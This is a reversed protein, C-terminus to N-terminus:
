DWELAGNDFDGFDDLSSETERPVDWEGRPDPEPQEVPAEGFLHFAKRRAYIATDTLDDRQGKHKRLKGTEEDISWQQNKLQEALKSDKLVKIRGDLCDGNFLEVSDMYNKKDAAEIPIGYVTALERLIADGNGDRDAVFGVPWGTIGLPSEKDPDCPRGALMATVYREGGLLTAISRAYMGRQEFEWVQYLTKTPDTPSFAWITIATPDSSGLDKGYVFEWDKRHAPLEAFRLPNDRPPDWINWPAGDDTYERFRFVNETDDAAWEGLDERRWVPHDDGWGNRRKRRLADEWANKILPVYPAADQKNWRHVSWGDWEPMELRSRYPMAIESGPRTAEYFLGSMHHGPTGTLWLTGSYDGLRPEIVREILHKLLVPKHSAAEDIGVEHRPVGRLKEIQKKDDAGVLRLTSKNPLTMCLDTESWHAKVAMEAMLEKMPEWMLEEAHPRTVAIFLCDAGPQLFCRRSMRARGGTTKGARGGCLVAIRLSTDLVFDRQKPHCSDLIQDALRAYVGRTRSREAHRKGVQTLFDDFRQRDRSGVAEQLGARGM